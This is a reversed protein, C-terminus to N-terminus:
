KRELAKKWINIDSIFRGMTEETMTTPQMNKPSNIHGWFDNDECALHSQWNYDPDNQCKKCM